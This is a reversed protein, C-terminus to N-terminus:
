QPIVIVGETRLHALNGARALLGVTMAWPGLMMSAFADLCDGVARRPSRAWAGLASRVVQQLRAQFAAFTMASVPAATISVLTRTAFTQALALATPSTSAYTQSPFSEFIRIGMPQTLNLTLTTGIGASAAAAVQVATAASSFFQYIVFGVLKWYVRQNLPTVNNSAIWRIASALFTAEDPTNFNAAVNAETDRRGRGPIAFGSPADVSAIIAGFRQVAVVRPDAGAPVPPGIQSLIATLAAQVGREISAIAVPDLYMFAAPRFSPLRITPDRLRGVFLRDDGDVAATLYAWKDGTGGPDFGVHLAM